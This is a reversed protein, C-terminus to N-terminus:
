RNSLEDTKVQLTKLQELRHRLELITDDQKSKLLSHKKNVSTIDASLGDKMEAYRRNTENINNELKLTVDAAYKLKNELDYQENRLSEIEADKRNNSTNNEQKNDEFQLLL